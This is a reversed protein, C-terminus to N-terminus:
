NFLKAQDFSNLIEAVLNNDYGVDNKKNNKSENNLDLVIGEQAIESLSFDKNNNKLEVLIKTLDPISVLHCLKILLM